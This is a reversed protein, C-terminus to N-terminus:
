KLSKQNDSYPISSRLDKNFLYPQLARPIEKFFLNLIKFFFIIKKANILWNPEATQGAKALM